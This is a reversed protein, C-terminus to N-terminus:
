PEELEPRIAIAWWNDREYGSDIVSGGAAHIDAELEGAQYLHYYREYTTKTEDSAQCSQSTKMVWPVMVDQKDGSDWGRRSSKQELAWVFILAKADSPVNHRTTRTFGDREPESVHSQNNSLAPRLCRLVEAVGAVRRDRTSLHHLVAISIAFDFRGTPHPLDLSDAVVADTYGPKQKAINVLNTSRDSAPIFINSNVSLYKGNGCGADIGVSGDSLEQLFKAILPWPKYRTSSFHPAIQEYINHVHTTEYEAM